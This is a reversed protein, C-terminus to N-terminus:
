DQSADPAVAAATPRDGGNDCLVEIFNALSVCCVVTSIGFYIWEAKGLQATTSPQKSFNMIGVAIVAFGVLTLIIKLIKLVKHETYRKFKPIEGIFVSAINIVVARYFLAVSDYDGPWCLVTTFIIAGTSVLAAIQKDTMYIEGKKYRFISNDFLSFMRM